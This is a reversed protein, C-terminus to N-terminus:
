GERAHEMHLADACFSFIALKPMSVLVLDILELSGSGFRSALGTRGDNGSLVSDKCADGSTDATLGTVLVPRMALPFVAAVVKGRRKHWWFAWHM